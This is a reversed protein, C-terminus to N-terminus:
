GPTPRSAVGFRLSRSNVGGFKGRLIAAHRFLGTSLVTPSVQRDALVLLLADAVPVGAVLDFDHEILSWGM